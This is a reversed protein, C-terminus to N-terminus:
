EWGKINSIFAFRQRKYVDESCNIIYQKNQGDTVNAMVEFNEGDNSGLIQYEKGYVTESFWTIRVENITRAEPLEM